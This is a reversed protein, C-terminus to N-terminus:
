GFGAEKSQEYVPLEFDGKANTLAQTVNSWGENHIQVIVREVPRGHIDLVRGRAADGSTLRLDVGTKGSRGVKVEKPAASQLVPKGGGAYELYAKGPIVSLRYVGRSDARGSISTWPDRAKEPPKTSSALVRAGPIPRGTRANLVRGTLPVFTPMALDPIATVKGATVIVGTVGKRLGNRLEARLGYNGPPLGDIIFSGDTGTRIEAYGGSDASRASVWENPMPAGRADVLRGSISGGPSLILTDSDWDGFLVETYGRMLVSPSVKAAEPIGTLRYRGDADTVAPNLKVVSSLYKMSVSEGRGEANKLSLGRPEVSAGPIGKGDKDTIRGERVGPKSVVIRYGDAPEPGQWWVDARLDGEGGAWGLYEDPEFAILYYGMSSKPRPLSKLQFSGDAGSVAGGKVASFVDSGVEAYWTLAAYVKVGAVPNGATDVVKGKAALTNEASASISIAAALACYMLIAWTM